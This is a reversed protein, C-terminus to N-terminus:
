NPQLVKAYFLMFKLWQCIVYKEVWNQKTNKQRNRTNNKVWESEDRHTRKRDFFLFLRSHSETKKNNLNSIWNQNLHVRLRYTNNILLNNDMKLSRNIFRLFPLFCFVFSYFFFRKLKSVFYIQKETLQGLWIFAIVIKLDFIKNKKRTTQTIWVSFVFLNSAIFDVIKIQEIFNLNLQFSIIWRESARGPSGMPGPAPTFMSTPFVRKKM